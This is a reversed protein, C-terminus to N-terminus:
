SCSDNDSVVIVLVLKINPIDGLTSGHIKIISVAVSLQQMLETIIRHYRDV